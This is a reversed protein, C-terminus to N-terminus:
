STRRRSRGEGRLRGGQYDATDVVPQLRRGILRNSLMLMFIGISSSAVLM